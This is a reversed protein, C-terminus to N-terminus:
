DSEGDTLQPAEVVAMKLAAKQLRPDIKDAVRRWLKLDIAVLAAIESRSLHTGRELLDRLAQEPDSTFAQRFEEDTLLRGIVLEVNHQTV